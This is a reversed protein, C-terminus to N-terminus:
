LKSTKTETTDVRKNTQEINSIVYPLWSLLKQSSTILQIVIIDDASAFRM